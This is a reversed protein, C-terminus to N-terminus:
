FHVVDVKVVQGEVVLTGVVDVFGAVVDEVLGGVVEDDPVVVFGAVVDDVLGGVVEADPVVVFGAVVVDAVEMQAGTHVATKALGGGPSQEQPTLPVSQM